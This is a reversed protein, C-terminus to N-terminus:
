PLVTVNTQELYVIGGDCGALDLGAAGRTAQTCCTEVGNSLRIHERKPPPKPAHDEKYIGWGVASFFAIISVAASLGIIKAERDQTESM